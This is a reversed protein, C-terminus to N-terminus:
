GSTELGFFVLAAGSAAIGALALLILPLTELALLRMLALPVLTLTLLILTLTIRLGAPVLSLRRLPVRPARLLKSPGRRMITWRWRLLRIMSPLLLLLAPIPPRGLSRRLTLTLTLAAVIVTVLPRLRLILPVLELPLRMVLTLEM